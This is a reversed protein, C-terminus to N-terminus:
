GEGARTATYISCIGLTLPITKPHVFGTKELIREFDPGDPFAMVSRYLYEYAKPDKSTVRGIFPLLNRFYFHYIQKFPFLRPKSFELIM